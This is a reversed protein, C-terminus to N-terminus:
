RAKRRPAPIIEPERVNGPLARHYQASGTESAPLSSTSSQSRGFYRHVLAFGFFFVFFAAIFSLSILVAGLVAIGLIAVVLGIFILLLPAGFMAHTRRGSVSVFITVKRRPLCRGPDDPPIMAFKRLM